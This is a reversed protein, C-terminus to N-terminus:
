PETATAPTLDPEPIVVSPPSEPTVSSLSQHTDLGEKSDTTATTVASTQVDEAMKKKSPATTPFWIQHIRQQQLWTRGMEGLFALCNSWTRYDYEVLVTRPSQYYVSYGWYAPIYVVHGVDVDFEVFEVKAHDRRHHEKPDWVNMNSRYEGVDYDRVEHLYRANKKWPAMKVTIKGTSVVLFKRTHLHYRFPTYADQAGMALDLRSYVTLPPRLYADLERLKERFEPAAALLSANRESYHPHSPRNNATASAGLIEWAVAYPVSVGYKVSTPDFMELTMPNPGVEAVVDDLDPPLPLSGAAAFVVPQLLQCSEQLNANDIYDMEFVDPEESCKYQQVLHIYVFVVLFFLLWEVM